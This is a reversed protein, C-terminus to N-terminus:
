FRQVLINLRHHKIPEIELTKRSYTQITVHFTIVCPSDSSVIDALFM